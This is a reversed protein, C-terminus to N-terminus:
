SGEDTLQGERRELLHPLPELGSALVLGPPEKEQVHDLSHGLIPATHVSHCVWPLTSLSCAVSSAAGSLPIRGLILVHGLNAMAMVTPSLTRAPDPDMPQPDAQPQSFHPCCPLHIVIPASGEGLAGLPGARAERAKELGRVWSQPRGERSIGSGM